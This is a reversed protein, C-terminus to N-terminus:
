WELQHILYARREPLRWWSWETQYWAIIFSFSSSSFPSSSACSESKRSRRRGVVVRCGVWESLQLLLFLASLSGVQPFEPPTKMIMMVMVRHQHCSPLLFAFVTEEKGRTFLAGTAMCVLFAWCSGQSSADDSSDAPTSLPPPTFCFQLCPPPLM